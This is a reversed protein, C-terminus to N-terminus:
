NFVQILFAVDVQEICVFPNPKAVVPTRHLVLLFRGCTPKNKAAEKNAEAQGTPVYFMNTLKQNSRQKGHAPLSSVQGRKNSNQRNGQRRSFRARSFKAM